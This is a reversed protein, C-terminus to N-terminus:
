HPFQTPSLIPEGHPLTGTWRILADAAEVDMYTISVEAVLLILSEQINVTSALINELSNLNRLDCGLQLYRSM